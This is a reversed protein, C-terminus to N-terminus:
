SAWHMLDSEVKKVVTAHIQIFQPYKIHLTVNPGAMSIRGISDKPATFGVDVLEAFEGSRSKRLTGHKARNAIDAVYTLSPCQNVADEVQKCHLGKAKFGSKLYDKLNWTWIFLNLFGDELQKPAKVGLARFKTIFDTSSAQYSIQYGTGSPDQVAGFAREIRSRLAELDAPTM